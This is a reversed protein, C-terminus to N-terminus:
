PEWNILWRWARPDDDQRRISINKAGTYELISTMFGCIYERQSEALEPLDRVVLVGSRPTFNEVAAEGTDYYTRWIKSVRKVVFEVSAVKLFIKYMGALQIENVEYGLRRMRCPDDPYLVGAAAAYIEFAEQLPMWSTALVSHYIRAAGPSLSSLMGAEADPGLTSVLKKVVLVDSAKAHPM